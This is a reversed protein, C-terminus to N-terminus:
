QNQVLGGWITYGMWTHQSEALKQRFDGKVIAARYIPTPLSYANKGVPRASICLDVNTFSLPAVPLAEQLEKGEGNSDLDVFVTKTDLDLTKQKDPDIWHASLQLWAHLVPSSFYIGELIDFSSIPIRTKYANQGPM